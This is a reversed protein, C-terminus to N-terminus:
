LIRPDALPQTITHRSGTFLSAGLAILLLPLFPELPWFPLWLQLNVVAQPWLPATFFSNVAPFWLQGTVSAVAGIFMLLGACAQTARSASPAAARRRQIQRQKGWAAIRLIMAALGLGYFVYDHPQVNYANSQFPYYFLNWWYVSFPYAWLFYIGARHLTKWQAFSLQRRGMDFSTMVMAALLLYGTSGEIEDRLYYIDAYYHDSHFTSVMFIFLGQFGMALAFVLGTYRRNRAWWLSWPAPFLVPMASAAVIWFIFPVAWRVSYAILESLDNPDSLSHKSIEILISVLM